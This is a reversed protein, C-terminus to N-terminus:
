QCSHFMSHVGTLEAVSTRHRASVRLSREVFERSVTIVSVQDGFQRHCSTAGLGFSEGKAGPVEAWPLCSARVRYIYELDLDTLEQTAKVM